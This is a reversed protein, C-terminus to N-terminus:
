RLSLAPRAEWSTWLPRYGMRSWFPASLPNVQAYHLLTVTVGAEELEAHLRRVLVAGIGSGRESPEVFLMYLYALPSSRALPAIWQAEEPPEASVMGVAVGDREALWTWPAPGSLLPAVSDRLAQASGPREIVAGFFSDYRVLGLGLRVVAELDAPGARRLTVDAPVSQRDPRLSVGAAPDAPDAPEGPSRATKRASRAAIVARPALGHDLLANVGAVDHAPWLVVAASDEDGARDVSALHLRWQTLLQDIANGVDPGAIRPILSIRRTTGWTREVSGPAAEWHVCSAMAVPLGGPGAAAFIAGCGAEGVPHGPLLPDIDRLRNTAQRDLDAEADRDPVQM